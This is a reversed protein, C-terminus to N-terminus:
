ANTSGENDCIWWVWGLPCPQGPAAPQWSASRALYHDAM